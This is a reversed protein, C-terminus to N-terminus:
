LIKEACYKQQTTEELYKIKEVTINKGAYITRAFSDFVTSLSVSVPAEKAVTKVEVHKGYFAVMAQQQQYYGFPQTTIISLPINQDAQTSINSGHIEWMSNMTDLTDPRVLKGDENIKKPANIIPKFTISPLKVKYETILSEMMDSETPWKVGLETFYKISETRAKNTETIFEKNSYADRNNKIEIATAFVNSFKSDVQTSADNLEIDKILALREAVLKTTSPEHIAWLDREGGLPYVIQTLYGKNTIDVLIDLRERVGTESAGLLLKNLVDNGSTIEKIFPSLLPRLQERLAEDKFKDNLQQRESGDARLFSSQLAENLNNLTETVTESEEIFCGAINLAELLGAQTSEEFGYMDFIIALHSM